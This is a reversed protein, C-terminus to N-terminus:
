TQPSFPPIVCRLHGRRKLRSLDPPTSNPIELQRKCNERHSHASRGRNRPVQFYIASCYRSCSQAVQRSANRRRIMGTSGEELM